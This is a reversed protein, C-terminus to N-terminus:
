VRAAVIPFRLSYNKEESSSFYLNLTLMHCSSSLKSHALLASLTTRAKGVLKLKTVLSFFCALTRPQSRLLEFSAKKKKGRTILLNKGGSQPQRCPSKVDLLDSAGFGPNTSPAWWTCLPWSASTWQAQARMVLPSSAWATGTTWLNSIEGPCLGWPALSACLPKRIFSWPFAAKAQGSVLFMWTTPSWISSVGLIYM